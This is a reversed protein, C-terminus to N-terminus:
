QFSGQQFFASLRRAQLIAPTQRLFLPLALLIASPQCCASPHQCQIAPFPFNNPVITPGLVLIPKKIGSERLKVGEVVSDVCFGDVGGNDALKAFDTLGHGYANSKVVSWLKTNKPILNRFTKINEELASKKIEVWTKYM